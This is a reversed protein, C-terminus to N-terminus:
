KDIAKLKAEYEAVKKMDKKAGYMESLHDLIIRYNAKQAPKLSSHNEFYKICAEAYPIAEDIKANMKAKLENKKKVDEPKTGKILLIENSLDAFMNFQHNTMLVNADVGTDAAIAIKLVSTLKERVAPNDAETANKGIVSNYLEVAYNYALVFNSPDKVLLEDYKAYLSAKDGNDEASKLEIATWYDNKPYLRKAKELLPKLAAQDPKKSYYDVLYEYVDMYDPGAVEADTLKKYLAIGEDMRKALLASKATNSVLATDLPQLKIQTYEYKKALTYDKVDLAKSFSRYAADFNKANFEKAGLDYFGAYLDLYSGYEELKLWIDKTDLEQYRRLAAYADVKLNFQSSDPITKDQSLSNYIRGKYYWAEPQNANKANSLFKDIGAKGEKFQSKNIMEKISELDQASGAMVGFGLLIMFYIKKM